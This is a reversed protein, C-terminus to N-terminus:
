FSVKLFGLINWKRSLLVTYLISSVFDNIRKNWICYGRAKWFRTENKQLKHSIVLLSEINCCLKANYTSGNHIYKMSYLFSTAYLTYVACFTILLNREPIRVKYQLKSVKHCRTLLILTSYQSCKLYSLSQPKAIQEKNLERFYKQNNKFSEQLISIKERM